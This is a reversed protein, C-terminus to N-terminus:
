NRHAMTSIVIVRAGRQKSNISNVTLTESYPKEIYRCM